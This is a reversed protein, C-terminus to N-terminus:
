LKDAELEKVEKLESIGMREKWGARVEAHCDPCNTLYIDANEPWPTYGSRYERKYVMFVCGCNKCTFKVPEYKRIFLSLLTDERGHQLIIM